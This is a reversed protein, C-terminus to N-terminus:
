DSGTCDGVYDLNERLSCGHFKLAIIGPWGRLFMSQRGGHDKDQIALLNVISDLPIHM